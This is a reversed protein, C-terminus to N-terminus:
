RAPIAGGFLFEHAAIAQPVSCSLHHAGVVGPADPGDGSCDWGLDSWDYEGIIGFLTSVFNFKVGSASVDPPLEASFVVPDGGTGDAAEEGVNLIQLNYDIEGGPAATTNTHVELLWQPAATAAPASQAAFAAAIAALLGLKSIARKMPGGEPPQPNPTQPPAEQAKERLPGQGQPPGQAQGEPMKKRQRPRPLERQAAEPRRASRGGAGHM